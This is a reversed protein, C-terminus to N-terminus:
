LGGSYKPSSEIIKTRLVSLAALLIDESSIDIRKTPNSAESTQRSIRSIIDIERRVKDSIYYKSASFGQQDSLTSQRQLEEEESSDGDDVQCSTPISEERQFKAGLNELIGREELEDLAPADEHEMESDNDPFYSKSARHPKDIENCREEDEEYLAVDNFADQASKLSEFKKLKSDRFRRFRRQRVQNNLKEVKSKIMDETVVTRRFWRIFSVITLQDEQRLPGAESVLLGFVRVFEAPQSFDALSTSDVENLCELYGQMLLNLEVSSSSSVM